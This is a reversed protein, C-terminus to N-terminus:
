GYAAEQAAAQQPQREALTQWGERLTRALHLVEDVAETSASCLGQTLRQMMYAYLQGLSKAIEGGREFDLSTALEIIAEMAKSTAQAEAELDGAEIAARARLLAQMLAEYSLCVLQLPDATEVRQKRYAAYGQM